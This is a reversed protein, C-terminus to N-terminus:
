RRWFTTITYLLKPSIRAIYYRIREPAYISNERLLPYDIIGRKERSFLKAERIAKYMIKAFHTKILNKLTTEPLQNVIPTLKRCIAFISIANPTRDKQTTISNARIVYHYFVIDTSLVTQASLMARITFDEDEHLIGKWFYLENDLLFSRRYVSGWAAVFFRGTLEKELFCKGSMVPENVTKRVILEEKDDIHKLTTGSVVDPNEEQEIAIAFKACSDLSLYDDSDLFIIYDGKARAVGYNRADSLGGNSKHYVEIFSHDAALTDCLIGSEDTSGDDVLIVQLKDKPYDQNVVSQVCRTLCDQVNYVPIIITFSVM